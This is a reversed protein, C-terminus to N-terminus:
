DGLRFNSRPTLPVIDGCVRMFVARYCRPVTQCLHCLEPLIQGMVPLSLSVILCDILCHSLKHSVILCMSVVVCKQVTSAPLFSGGEVEGARACTLCRTPCGLCRGTISGGWTVVHNRHTAPIAPTELYTAGCGRGHRETGDWVTALRTPTVPSGYLLPATQPCGPYNRHPSSPHPQSTRSSAPLKSSSAVRAPRLPGCPIHASRLGGGVHASGGVKHAGTGSDQRMCTRWLLLFVFIAASRPKLFFLIRKGRTKEGDYGKLQLRYSNNTSRLTSFSRTLISPLETQTQSKPSAM